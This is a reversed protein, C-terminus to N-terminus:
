GARRDTDGLTGAIALAEGRRDSCRREDGILAYAASLGLLTSIQEEGGGARCSALSDEFCYVAGRLDDGFVALYATAEAVLAALTLDGHRAAAHGARDVLAEAAELDGDYGALVSDVCLATVRDAVESRGRDDCAHGLERVIRSLFVAGTMWLSAEVEGPETPCWEWTERVTPQESLLREEWEPAHSGLRGAPDAVTSRHARRLETVSEFM